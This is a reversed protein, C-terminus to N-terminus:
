EWLAKSKQRKVHKQELKNAKETLKEQDAMARAMMKKQKEKSGAKKQRKSKGATSGSTATLAPKDWANVQKVTVKTKGM